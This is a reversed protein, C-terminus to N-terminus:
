TLNCQIWGSELRLCESALTSEEGRALVSMLISFNPLQVNMDAYLSMEKDVSAIIMPPM